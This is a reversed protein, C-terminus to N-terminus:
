SSPTSASAVPPTSSSSTTSSTARRVERRGQRGQGPRRRRQRARARLRPRRGARRRGAAPHRREPAPPRRSSCRRTATRRSGSPSSAPSPRRVPVRSAPSCSSPRRSRRSSSAASSAVSSRARAGRQRDARGAPGPEAGQQGRRRPRARAGQGTFEKVVDLAVDADLLARRIERVTGDVDAPRSSARAASTRSPIPSGILSPESLLWPAHWNVPAGCSSWTLRRRRDLGCRGAHRLLRQLISDSEDPALAYEFVAFQEETGSHHPHFGVRLLKLSRLVDIDRDGSDYDLSEALVEPDLEAFQATLYLMANSGEQGIEAM